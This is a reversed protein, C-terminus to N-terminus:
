RLNNQIAELGHDEVSWGFPLFFEILMARALEHPDELSRQRDSTSAHHLSQAVPRLNGPPILRRPAALTRGAIGDASLEIVILGWEPNNAALTSDFEFARTVYYVASTISFLEDAKLGYGKRILTEPGDHPFSFLSIFQGDSLFEGREADCYIGDVRARRIGVPTTM